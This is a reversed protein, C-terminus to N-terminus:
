GTHTYAGANLVIANYVGKSQHLWDVLQGEHNSQKFDVTIDLKHAEIRVQDEVDLLTTTGYVSPERKGLLNLNPGNIFLLKM